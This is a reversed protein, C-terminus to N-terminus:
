QSPMENGKETGNINIQPTISFEGWEDILNVPNANV